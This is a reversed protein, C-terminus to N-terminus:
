SEVFLMDFDVRGVKYTEFIFSISVGSKPNLTFMGFPNNKTLILVTNNNDRILVTVNSDPDTYNLYVLINVPKERLNAFGVVDYVYVKGIPVILNLHVKHYLGYGDIESGQIFCWPNACEVKPLFPYINSTYFGVGDYSISSTSGSSIITALIPLLVILILPKAYM